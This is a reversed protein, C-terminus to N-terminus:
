RALKASLVLILGKDKFVSTGVVVQEGEKVSVDTAMEARGEGVFNFKLGELRVTAPGTGGNKAISVSTIHFEMQLPTRKPDADDGLAAVGGGRVNRTGEKVRQGFTALLRYGKYSLTSRLATLTEKLEAPVDGDAGPARSAALVHLRLDVDVSAADERDLRKIAEEITVINEPFDRVTITRFENSVDVTSGRAGSGLAAIVARLAAPDRHKLEFVRSKLGKEVRTDPESARTPETPKPQASATPALAMGLTLSLIPFFSRSM